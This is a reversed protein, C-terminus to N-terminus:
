LNRSGPTEHSPCGKAHWSADRPEWGACAGRMDDSINDLYRDSFGNCCTERTRYWCSQCGLSRYPDPKSAREADIDFSLFPECYRGSLVLAREWESKTMTHGPLVVADILTSLADRLEEEM